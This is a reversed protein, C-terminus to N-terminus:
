LGSDRLISIDTDWSIRNREHWLRFADDVHNQAEKLSMGNVRALHELAESAKGKLGSLGMHTAAHCWHCLALLRRLKQLGGGRGDEIYEWREHAELQGSGDGCCECRYEARRYIHERVRGWESSRLMSRANVTWAGKPILDVYLRDGGFTRDEGIIHLPETDVPKFMKVLRKAVTPDRTGWLQVPEPFWEAGLEKAENSQAVGVEFYWVKENSQQQPIGLAPLCAANFTEALRKAVDPDPTGWCQIPRPFWRAGLARAEGKRAYPVDFYWVPKEGKKVLNPVSNPTPVSRAVNAPMSPLSPVNAPISPVSPGNAPEFAEALREAVAADETGWLRVPAPYWWAGLRKAEEKRTYPVKFYWTSNQKPLPPTAKAAVHGAHYPSRQKKM